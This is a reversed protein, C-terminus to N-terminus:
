EEASKFIVGDLPTEYNYALTATVRITKSGSLMSETLANSQRRTVQKTVAPIMREVTSAPTKVVRRSEQRTVAPIVREVMRGNVNVYETSAEQAVVTETVTEYTAPISVFETSAEQVVIMDNSAGTFGAGYGRSGPMAQMVPQAPCQGSNFVMSGDWCSMSALPAPVASTFLGGNNRRSTAQSHIVRDSFAIRQQPTTSRNGHPSILMAQQGYRRRRETGSVRFSEITTLKTGAGSASLEAKQRANAVAKEAAEKYLADYNSFDFGYLNVTEVGAETFATLYDSVENSPRIWATFGIYSEVHTVACVKEPIRSKEARLKQRKDKDINMQRQNFWKDNQIDRHRQQAIRNGALCDDDRKEVSSLNTFSIDVNKGAIVDQVKNIVTAAEDMAIRDVEATTKIRGTVVAIDPTARVTGTGTVFVPKAKFPEIEVEEQEERWDLFDEVEDVNLSVSSTELSQGCGALLLCILAAGVRKSM